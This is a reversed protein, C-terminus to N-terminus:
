AEITLDSRATAQCALIMGQAKDDPHLGDESAMDVQGELLKVACIGCSGARCSSDIEVGLREAAELVTEDPQLQGSKGSRKFKITVGTAKAVPQEPTEVAPKKASKSPGFMEFKIQEKTVGLETLMNKLADMMPPSGCLHIRKDTIKPVWAALRKATLQGTHFGDQPKELEGVVIFTKLKPNRRKLAKMEDAFIFEQLTRCAYIFYLEGNWGIDLMARAVSMMPTVGVGGGILVISKAEKGTFIFHGAPPQVELTDGEQLVDHLYRSGIGQEERKVTIECYYGQTPSSSITYNRRITKGEHPISLTLFQGPQYSFPIAAGDCAVMRFTKVEPTEQYIRVVRLRCLKRAGVDLLGDDSVASGEASSCCGESDEVAPSVKEVPAARVVPPAAHPISENALRELLVSTRRVKILYIAVLTLGILLSFFCIFLSFASMGFLRFSSHMAAPPL